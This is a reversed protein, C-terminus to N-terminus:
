TFNQEVWLRVKPWVDSAFLSEVTRIMVPSSGVDDLGISEKLPVQVRRYRDKLVQQSILDSTSSGAEFLANMMPYSPTDNERKPYLWGLIGYNEPGRSFLPTHPITMSSKTGGTGISLLRISEIPIGAEIATAMALSSPNNAFLGGDVCYGLESHKHPPFYTPAASTCLASEVVHSREPDNGPTPLNHLTVPRWSGETKDLLQFTTVLVRAQDGLSGLTPDTPFLEAIVSRLGEGGYRPYWLQDQYIFLSEILEKTMGPIKSAASVAARKALEGAKTGVGSPRTFIQSVKDKDQYLGVVQDISKRGALALAIIGGTSTGAFLNVRDLIGFDSHLKRIILASLLGRIGGGDCSLIRYTAVTERGCVHLEVHPGSIPSPLPSTWPLSRGEAVKFFVTVPSPVGVSMLITGQRHLCTL